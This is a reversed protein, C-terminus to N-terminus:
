DKKSADTSADKGTTGGSGATGGDKKGGNGGKGGQAAGGNGVPTGGAGTGGGSGGGTCKSIDIKCTTPNCSITGTTMAGSTATSCTKGLLSATGDCTEPSQVKNDGCKAGAEVPQATTGNNSSSCGIAIATAFLIILPQKTWSITRM